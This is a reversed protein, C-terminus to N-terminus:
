CIHLRIYLRYSDKHTVDNHCLVHVSMSIPIILDITSVIRNHRRIILLKQVITMYARNPPQYRDHNMQVLERYIFPEFVSYM